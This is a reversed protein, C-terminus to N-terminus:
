PAFGLADTALTWCDKCSLDGDVYGVEDGEELPEGCPCPERNAFQAEFLPGKDPM